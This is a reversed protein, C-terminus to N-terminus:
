CGDFDDDIRKNLLEKYQKKLKRLVKESIAIERLREKIVEKKLTVEEEVLDKKALKEIDKFKKM